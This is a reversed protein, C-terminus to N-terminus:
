KLDLIASMAETKAATLHNKILEKLFTYLSNQDYDEGEWSEEWM